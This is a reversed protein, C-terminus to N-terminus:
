FGIKAKNVLKQEIKISREARNKINISVKTQFIIKKVIERFAMQFLQNFQDGFFRYLRNRTENPDIHFLAPTKM